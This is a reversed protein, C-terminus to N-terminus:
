QQHPFLRLTCKYSYSDLYVLNALLTGARYPLNVRFEMRFNAIIGGAMFLINFAVILREIFPHGNPRSGM